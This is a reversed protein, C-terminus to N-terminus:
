NEPNRISVPWSFTFSAGKGLESSLSINGGHRLVAKKVITLGIGTGEIEDRSQLTQFLKFALSHFKPDIGKGDDKVTFFYYDEKKEVSVSVMGDDKERHKISNGILNRFILDLPARHTEFTPLNDCIDVTYSDPKDLSESIEEVLNQCSINTVTYDQRGIRSYQLLDNLLNDMRHIRSKLTKLNEKVEDGPNELDEEIWISLNEIARLPSKLDHSAIYAFEDLDQNSRQLMDNAVEIEKLHKEQAKSHSIRESIDVASALIHTKGGIKIPNLAVEIPVERGSKTRGVLDRNSGMERKKPNLMYKKRYAEHKERSISVPVLIEINKGTLEEKKYEFLELTKSNIYTIMGKGDVTIMATPSSNVIEEFNKNAELRKSIDVACALVHQTKGIKVPSLAVEIPIPKGDKAIGILDRGAGMKEKVPNKIYEERYKQHTVPDIPVLIEVKKGILEEESYGFLDLAMSNAYTINGKFDSIIIAAPTAEVITSTLELHKQLGDETM